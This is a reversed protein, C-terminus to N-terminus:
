PSTTRACAAKCHNAAQNISSRPPRLHRASAGIVYECEEATVLKDFRHVLPREPDALNQRHETGPPARAPKRSPAGLRHRRKPAIPTADPEILPRSSSEGSPPEHATMGTRWQVWIEERALARGTQMQRRLIAFAALGDGKLGARLLLDQAVPSSRPRGDRCSHHSIACRKGIAPRQRTSSSRMRTSWDPPSVIGIGTLAGLLRRAQTSNAAVARQLRAIASQPNRPREIVKCTPSPSCADAGDPPRGRRGTELWQAAEAASAPATSCSRWKSSRASIAPM